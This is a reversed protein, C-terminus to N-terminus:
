LYLSECLLCIIVELIFKESKNPLDKILNLTDANKEFKEFTEPNITCVVEECRKMTNLVKVVNSPLSQEIKNLITEKFEKTELLQDGVKLRYKVLYYKEILAWEPSQRVHLKMLAPVDIRDRAKRISERWILSTKIWTSSLPGNSWIYSTISLVRCRRIQIQFSQYISSRSWASKMKEWTRLWGILGLTM